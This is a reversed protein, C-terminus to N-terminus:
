GAATNASGEPHGVSRTEEALLRAQIGHDFGSDDVDHEPGQRVRHREDLRRNAAAPHLVAQLPGGGGEGRQGRNGVATGVDAVEAEAGGALDDAVQEVGAHGARGVGEGGAAVAGAQRHADADVGEALQVAGGVVARSARDDDDPLPGLLQPGLLVEPHGLFLEPGQGFLRRDADEAGVHAQPEAVGIGAADLDEADTAGSHVAAAPQVRQGRGVPGADDGGELADELTRLRLEVLHLHLPGVPRGPPDGDPHRGDEAAVPGAAEDPGHLVDGLAAEELLGQGVVRGVVAEGAKGVAAQEPLRQPILQGPGLRGHRHQEDVEVVELEDVVGEAVLRAVLEEQGHGVPQRVGDPGVVEYGAEAAVLEDDDADVDAVGGLGLADGLSEDVGQGGGEGDGAPLDAHRGAHAQDQRGVGAEVGLGDQAVGVRRQVLQASNSSRTRWPTVVRRAM